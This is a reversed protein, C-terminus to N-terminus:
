SAPVGPEVGMEGLRDIMQCQALDHSHVSPARARKAGPARTLSISLVAPVVRRLQAAATLAISTPFEPDIAWMWWQAYWVPADHGRNIDISM